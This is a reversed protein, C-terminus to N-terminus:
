AADCDVSYNFSAPEAKHWFVATGQLRWGLAHQELCCAEHGPTNLLRWFAFALTTM